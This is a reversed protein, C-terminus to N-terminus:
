RGPQMNEYWHSMARSDGILLAQEAGSGRFKGAGGGCKPSLRAKQQAFGPSDKFKRNFEAPSLSLEHILDPNVLDPRCFSVPIMNWAPLGTGHVSKSAFIVVLSGIEWSLDCILRFKM